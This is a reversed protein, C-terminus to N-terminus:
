HSSGWGASQLSFSFSFLLGWSNTIRWCMIESKGNSWKWRWGRVPSMHHTRSLLQWLFLLGLSNTIFFLLLVLGWSNTIRWCSAIAAAFTGLTKSVRGPHSWCWTNPFLFLQVRRPDFTKIQWYELKQTAVLKIFASRFATSASWPIEGPCFAWSAAMALHDLKEELKQEVLVKCPERGPSHAPRHARQFSTSCWWCKTSLRGFNM